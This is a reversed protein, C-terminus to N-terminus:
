EGGDDKEKNQKRYEAPSIGTSSRFRQSFYSPSSFGCMGAIQSLPYDTTSLLEKSEQIRLQQIYNFPSLGFEKSFMHALHFKNMHVNQALLDLTLPERYHNEIYRRLAVTDSSLSEQTSSLVKSFKTKRLLKILLIDLLDQCLTEFGMDKQEIEKLMTKLYFQVDSGDDYFNIICFSHDSGDDMNLELGEIGMVIYELPSAALSTETHEVHPNVIVMDGATITFSRDTVLFQGKGGIVYFLEACNHTHPVSFWDGGYKASSIYLLKAKDSDTHINKAKLDYRNTSM